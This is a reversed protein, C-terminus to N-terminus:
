PMNRADSPVASVTVGGKSMTVKGAADYDAHHVLTTFAKDSGGNVRFRWPIRWEFTGVGRLSGVNTFIFDFYVCSPDHNPGQVVSGTADSGGGVTAWSSWEPHINGNSPARIGTATAPCTGENIEINEFSVDKPELYTTGMFGGSTTGTAEHLTGDFQVQYADSPEVVTFTITCSCPGNAATVVSTSARDGATFVVSSGSTSSLTGGGSVSWNYSGAPSVTLTVKEAVGIKTRARNTRATTVTQSTIACPTPCPPPGGHVAGGNSGNPGGNPGTPVKPTQSDGHCCM